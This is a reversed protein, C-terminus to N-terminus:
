LGVSITKEETYELVGELGLERGVGSQKMRGFPAEVYTVPVSNISVVGARVARAVRMARAVDGTWVTAALGYGTDNAIRVAEEEDRFRMVCVVPGFIEEQAVRM